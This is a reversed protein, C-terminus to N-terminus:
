PLRIADFAIYSSAPSTKASALGRDVLRLFPKCEADYRSVSLTGWRKLQLLSWAQKETLKYAKMTAKLELHQFENLRLGTKTTLTADLGPIPKSTQMLTLFTQEPTPVPPFILRDM